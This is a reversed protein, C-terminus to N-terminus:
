GRGRRGADGGDGGRGSRDRARSSREVIGAARGRPCGESAAARARPRSRARSKLDETSLRNTFADDDM